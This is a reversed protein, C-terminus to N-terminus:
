QYLSIVSPLLALDIHIELYTQCSIRFSKQAYIVFKDDIKKWAGNELYERNERSNPTKQTNIFIFYFSVLYFCSIKKSWCLPM